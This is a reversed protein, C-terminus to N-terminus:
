LRSRQSWEGTRKTGTPFSVKRSRCCSKCFAAFDLTILSHSPLTFNEQSTTSLSEVGIQSESKTRTPQPTESTRAAKTVVKEVPSDAPVAAV